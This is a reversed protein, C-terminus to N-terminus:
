PPFKLPFVINTKLHKDYYAMYQKMWNEIKNGIFKCRNIYIFYFIATIKLGDAELSTTLM